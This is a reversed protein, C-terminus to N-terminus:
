SLHVLIGVEHLYDWVGKHLIIGKTYWFNLKYQLYVFLDSDLPKMFMDTIQKKTDVHKIELDVNTFFSQFNHHKITIHKTQTQMQPSVALAIAGQNDNYFTVSNKLLQWPTGKFSSYSSLEGWLVWLSLVERMVKYFTTYEEEM